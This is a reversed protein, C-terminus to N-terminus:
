CSTSSDRREPATSSTSWCRSAASRCCPNPAAKPKPGCAAAGGGAMIVMLNPRRRPAMLEDWLHLGVVRREADVVPLQHIKNVRMLQLATERSLQPPVVLPDRYIIADISSSMDLGRLLGRRIDGDTLTGVLTGQESVALVIQLSTEELNRIAQRLDAHIPLMAKRWRDDSSCVEGELGNNPVPSM